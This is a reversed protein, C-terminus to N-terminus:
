MVLRASRHVSPECCCRRAGGGDGEKPTRNRRHVVTSSEGGEIRPGVGGGAAAGSSLERALALHCETPAPQTRCEAGPQQRRGAAGNERALRPTDDCGRHRSFYKAQNVFYKLAGRSCELATRIM